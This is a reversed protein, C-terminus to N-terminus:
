RSLFEILEWKQNDNLWVSVGVNGEATQSVFLAGTNLEGKVVELSDGFQDNFVKEEAM